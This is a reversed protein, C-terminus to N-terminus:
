AARRRTEDTAEGAENAPMPLRAARIASRALWRASRKGLALGRRFPKGDREVEWRWFFWFLHRLSYSAFPM